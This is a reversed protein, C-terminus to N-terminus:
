GRRENGGIQEIRRALAISLLRLSKASAWHIAEIEEVSQRRSANRRHITGRGIFSQELRQSPDITAEKIAVWLPKTKLKM